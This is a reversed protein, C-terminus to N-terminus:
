QAVAKWRRLNEETKAYYAAALDHPKFGYADAITALANGLYGVSVCGGTAHAAMMSLCEPPSPVPSYSAMFPLMDGWARRSEGEHLQLLLAFHLVDAMELLAAARDVKGADGPKKWWAWDPKLEQALEGLECLFATRLQALTPRPMNGLRQLEAQRALLDGYNISVKSSM